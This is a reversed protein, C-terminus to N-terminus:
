QKSFRLAQWTKGNSFRVLYMDAKLNAIDINVQRTDKGFVRRIIPNGIKDLILVERIDQDNSKTIFRKSLKDEDISLRLTSSTPNPSISYFSSSGVVFYFEFQANGCTTPANLRFLASGNAPLNMELKGYQANYNWSLPNGQQLSWNQTTIEPSTITVYSYGEEVPNDGNYDITLPLQSTTNGTTYYGSISAISFTVPKTVILTRGAFTGKFPTRLTCTILGTYNFTANAIAQIQVSSNTNSGIIQLNNSVSWEYTCGELGGPVNYTNPSTCSINENGQIEVSSLVLTPSSQLNQGPSLWQQLNGDTYSKHFKGYRDSYNNFFCTTWGGKLQGIIQNYENFLAAGSSGGTVVGSQYFAQWYNGNLPYSRVRTTQTHRMDKGNPHHNIFSENNSSANTQRSWGAYNVADGIGPPNTLELLLMDSAPNQARVISGSFQIGTAVFNGNCQPRWFQFQFRSGLLAAQEDADIVGNGLPWLSGNWNVDVVHFATLLFARSNNAENNILTGTGQYGNSVFRAVARASMMRHPYCLMHPICYTRQTNPDDTIGVDQLERFGAEIKQVSLSSALNGFNNLEVIHIIVASGKIPFIGVKSSPDFYTKKIASDLITRSDDYVYMEASPSLDFQDFVFGVNLANPVNIRLTWVKGVSTSTVNGDTINISVPLIDAYRYIKPDETTTDEDIPNTANPPTSPSYSFTKTAISSIQNYGPIQNAINSTSTAIRTVQANSINILLSVLILLQLKRM